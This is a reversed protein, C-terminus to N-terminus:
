YIYKQLVKIIQEISEPAVKKYKFVFILPIYLVFQDFLDKYQFM